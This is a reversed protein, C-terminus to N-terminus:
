ERVLNWEPDDYLEDLHAVFKGDVDYVHGGKIWIGGKDKGDDVHKPVWPGVQHEPPVTGCTIVYCEVETGDSLKRMEKVIPKVLNGADMFEPNLSHVVDQAITRTPPRLLVFAGAITAAILIAIPLKAKTM